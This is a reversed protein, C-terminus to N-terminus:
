DESDWKKEEEKKKEEELHRDVIRGVVSHAFRGGQRSKIGKESLHISIARFSKGEHWLRVILLLVKYEHPDVVLKGELYAYGYPTDGPHKAETREATKVQGRAFNRRAKGQKKM